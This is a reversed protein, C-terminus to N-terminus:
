IFGSVPVQCFAASIGWLFECLTNVILNLLTDSLSLFGYPNPGLHLFM